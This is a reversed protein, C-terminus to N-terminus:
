RSNFPLSFSFTAGKGDENNKAWIKGGHSEVINKCIYLGLGTGQFSKSAFKSFLRPFIGSDIGIGNDKISIIIENSIDNNDKKINSNLKTKEVILSIGDIRGKENESSIFKISNNILNSIVQAIRNKDAIFITNLDTNKFYLKFRVKKNDSELSHGFEKMIYYLLDWICVSEKKLFFKNGEIRTVDLIDETLQKLRNANKIVIGLFTKQKNDQIRDRVIKSFGLISQIPTRLEHAAINIFDRQMKDHSQIKKYAKKLEDNLETQKWLSNFISLYSM